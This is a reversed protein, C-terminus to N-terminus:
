MCASLSEEELLRLSSRRHRPFLDIGRPAREGDLERDVLDVLDHPRESLCRPPGPGGAEVHDLEVGAV